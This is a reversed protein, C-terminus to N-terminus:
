LALLHKPSTVSGPSQRSNVEIHQLHDFSCVQQSPRGRLNLPSNPFAATFHPNVPVSSYESDSTAGSGQYSLNPKMRLDEAPSHYPTLNSHKPSLDAQYNQVQNSPQAQDPCTAPLTQNTFDIASQRRFDNRQREIASNFTANQQHRFHFPHPISIPLTHLPTSFPDSLLMEECKKLYPLTSDNNEALPANDQAHYSSVTSLDIASDQRAALDAYQQHFTKMDATGLGAKCNPSHSALIYELNTKERKLAIIERQLMQQHDELHDTEGQLRDTLERRRNRCKAAALKNRERRVHRRAAEAPSM